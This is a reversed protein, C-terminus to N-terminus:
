RLDFSITDDDGTRNNYLFAEVIEALSSGPPIIDQVKKIHFKDVIHDLRATVGKVVRYEPTEPPFPANGPYIHKLIEYITDMAPRDRLAKREDRTMGNYKRGFNAATSLKMKLVRRLVPKAILRYKELQETPLVGRSAQLFANFDTEALPLIRQLIGPFNLGYYYEFPTKGQLDIGPVRDIGVSTVDCRGADPDVVVRRMKGAANAMAITSIDLFWEGNKDTYKQINQVHTHGTFVVRVHEKCMLAWLDRYGGYLEFDVLHRYVEWPAIVPHHVALLVFDGAEKAQAIQAELWAVGDAFLGCHSRGNGNDNILIMRVGEGLQVCYSGSERHVSLAQRPGYNYYFDFLGSKRMCPTPETGDKTYRVAHFFNEDDGEGCYDHTATTVCVKKGAAVLRDLRTRFDEHSALDGGNINDGTFVVTEAEPDALIKEIFGDLIKPTDILVIQDGRERNSISSGEEWIRESVLHSDTLLYFATKKM